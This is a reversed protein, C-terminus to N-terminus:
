SNGFEKTMSEYSTRLESEREQLNKLHNALHENTEKLEGLLKAIDEVEVLLPGVQHYVPRESDHSTLYGLTGDIERVQSQITAVQQSVLQLEQVIKELSERDSMMDGM